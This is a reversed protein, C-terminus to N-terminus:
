DGTRTPRPIARFAASHARVRYSVIFDRDGHLTFTPLGRRVGRGSGAIPLAGALAPIASSRAVRYAYFGGASHGGIFVRSINFREGIYESISESIAPEANLWQRTNRSTAVITTTTTLM